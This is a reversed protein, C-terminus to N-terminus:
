PSHNEFEAYRSPDDGVVWLVIAAVATVAAGVGFVIARNANTRARNTSSIREAEFSDQQAVQDVASLAEYEKVLSRTNQDQKAKQVSFYANMGGMPIAILTSAWAFTRLLGEKSRYKRAYDSSPRLTIMRQIIDTQAGAGIRLEERHAIFGDKSIELVHSGGHISFNALPSTGVIRGDLSINAEEESVEIHLASKLHAFVPALVLRTTVKVAEVLSPHMSVLQERRSVPKSTANDILVAQVLTDTGSTSITFALLHKAGVARGLEALAIDPADAGLLNLEAANSLFKQAGARTMVMLGEDQAAQAAALSITEGLSTPLGVLKPEIIYIQATSAPARSKPASHADPAHSTHPPVDSQTDLAPAANAALTLVMMFHLTSM